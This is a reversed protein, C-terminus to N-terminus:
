HFQLWSAPHWHSSTIHQPLVSHTYNYLHRSCEREREREREREEGERIENRNQLHHVVNGALNLIVPLGNEAKALPYSLTCHAHRTVTIEMMLISHQCQHYYLILFEGRNRGGREERGREEWEWLRVRGCHLYGLWKVHDVFKEGNVESWEPGVLNDVILRKDEHCLDVACWRPLKDNLTWLEVLYCLLVHYWSVDNGRTNSVQEDCENFLVQM